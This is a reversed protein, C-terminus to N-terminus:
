CDLRKHTPGEEYLAILTKLEAIEEKAKQLDDRLQVFNSTVEESPLTGADWLLYKGNEIRFQIKNAKIHRRLTSLSTGTKMAFHLLPIWGGKTETSSETRAM